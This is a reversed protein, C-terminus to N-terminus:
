EAAQAAEGVFHGGPAGGSFKGEASNGRRQIQKTGIGEKEETKNRGKRQKTGLTYHKLAPVAPLLIPAVLAASPHRGHWVAGSAFPLIMWM